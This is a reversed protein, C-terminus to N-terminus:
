RSRRGASLVLGLVCLVAVAWGSVVYLDGQHVGHTTTLRVLVPGEEFYRGTLLLLAFASLVGAVVLALLWRLM